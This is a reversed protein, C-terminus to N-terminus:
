SETLEPVERPHNLYMKLLLEIPRPVEREAAAMRQCHRVSVGLAFATAQGAVTLGLQDLAALYQKRTMPKENLVARELITPNKVKKPKKAKAIM